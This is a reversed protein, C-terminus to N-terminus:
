SEKQYGKERRSQRGNPTVNVGVRLKGELFQASGIQHRALQAAVPQRHMAPQRRRANNRGQASAAARTRDAQAGVHIGQRQQLLVVKGV